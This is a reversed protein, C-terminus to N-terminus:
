NGMSVRVAIERIERQSDVDTSIEEVDEGSEKKCKETEFWETSTGNSFALRIAGLPTYGKKHKSDIGTLRISGDGKIQQYLDDQPYDDSWHIHNDGFELVLLGKDEITKLELTTSDGDSACCAGM